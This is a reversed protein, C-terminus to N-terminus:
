LFTEMSLAYLDANIIRNHISKRHIKLMELSACYLNCDVCVRSSVIQSISPCYTDYPINQSSFAQNQFLNMFKAGSDGPSAIQIEPKYQM